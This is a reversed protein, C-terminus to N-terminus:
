HAGSRTLVARVTRLLIYLDLWLSWNRIYYTDLNEQVTLDGDSRESVQWLGSLGPTVQTRLNHFVPAFRSNHEIPFPRPGVLSMDGRFVNWLQPLEDLSTKRLFSGVGPLVRPDSRLKHYRDFEQKAEPHTNLYEGLKHEADPRMTRLKLVRFLRRDKGERTHFYFAPGSPRSLRILLACVGVVPAAPILLIGSVVIDIARKLLRSAPNLLNHKVEFGLIGGLDRPEVWLSSIGPLDPIVLVHHFVNACARLHDFLATEHLDPLVFIAYGIGHKMALESARGLTGAIPVGECEDEEAQDDLCLVPLYGLAGNTRLTSILRRATGGAGLVVVPVGWWRQSGFVRHCAWRGFPVLMLSLIWAVLVGGRSHWWDKAIFLSVTLLLYAQTVGRCVLRLHEVGTKGIGPYLDSLAFVAVSYVIALLMSHQLPPITPNFVSWLSFGSMAAISMAVFDVMFFCSGMLLVPSVPTQRRAVVSTILTQNM